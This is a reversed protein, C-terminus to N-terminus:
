VGKSIKEGSLAIVKAILFRLLSQNISTKLAKGNRSIETIFIEGDSEGTTGSCVKFDRWGYKIASDRVGM